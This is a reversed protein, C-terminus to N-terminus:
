KKFSKSRFGEAIWKFYWIFVAFLSDAKVTKPPEPIEKESLEVKIESSM